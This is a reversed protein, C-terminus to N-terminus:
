INDSLKKIENIRNYIFRKDFSYDNSLEEKIEKSKKGKKILKIILTDLYDNPSTLYAGPLITQISFTGDIDTIAYNYYLREGESLDYDGDENAHWIDIETNPIAQSCDLNLVRGSIIIRTGIESLSALQGNTLTPANSTYFPGQGYADETTENCAGNAKLKKPEHLRVSCGRCQGRPPGGATM